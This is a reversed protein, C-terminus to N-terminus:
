PPLLAEVAAYPDTTGAAVADVAADFAAGAELEDVRRAIRAAALRRLVAAAQERRRADGGGGELHSRLSDLADFLEGTGTGDSAVTTLV